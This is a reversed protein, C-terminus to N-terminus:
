QKQWLKEAMLEPVILESLLQALLDGSEINISAINGKAFTGISGFNSNRNTLWEVAQTDWQSGTFMLAKYDLSKTLYVDVHSWDGTECGDSSFRPGERFMLAGQLASGSREAPAMLWIGDKSTTLNMFSEIWQNKSDLLKQIQKSANECSKKVSLVIGLSELLQFLAILTARYSWISVGGTETAIPLILVENVLKTIKSNAERTLGVTRINAPMNELFKIVEVSTGSASIAVVLSNAPFEQPTLASAIEAFALFGRSRLQRAVDQAAYFSSGMGVFYIPQNKEIVPLKWIKEKNTDVIVNPIQLLDASFGAVNTEAM